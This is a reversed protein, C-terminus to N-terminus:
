IALTLLIKMKLICENIRSMFTSNGVITPIKHNIFQVFEMSMFYTKYDLHALDQFCSYFFYRGKSCELEYLQIIMVTFKLWSM